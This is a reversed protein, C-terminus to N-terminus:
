TLFKKPTFIRDGLGIIIITFRYICGRDIHTYADDVNNIDRIYKNGKKFVPITDDFLRACHRM